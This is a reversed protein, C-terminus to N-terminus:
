WGEHGIIADIYIYIYEDSPHSSLFANEALSVKQQFVFFYQTKSSDKNEILTVSTYEFKNLNNRSIRM